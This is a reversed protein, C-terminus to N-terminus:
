PVIQSLSFSAWFFPHPFLFYPDSKLNRLTKIQVSQLARAANKDQMWVDFFDQMQLLASHSDIQWHSALVRRAGRNLLCRQIGALGSGQYIKGYATECGILFVLSKNSWDIRKLQHLTVEVRNEVKEKGSYFSLYFISSDPLLTDPESHGLLVCIDYPKDLESIIEEWVPLSDAVALQIVDDFLHTVHKLFTGTGPFAEDASLLLRPAESISDPTSILLEASPLTVLATQEILATNKSSRLSQFPVRYLCDDPVIYTTESQSLKKLLEPWAFLRDYLWESVQRYKTYHSITSDSSALRFVEPTDQILERLKACSRRMKKNDIPASFLQLTDPHLMFAYLSDETVFHSILINGPLLQEKIKSLAYSERKRKYGSQSSLQVQKKIIHAKLYDLKVFASDVRGNRIEYLVSNKLYPFMRHQYLTLNDLNEIGLSIREFNQMMRNSTRIAQTYNGQRHIVEALIGQAEILSQMDGVSTAKKAAERLLDEAEHLLNMKIMSQGMLIRTDLGERFLGNKEYLNLALQFQVLAEEHQNLKQNLRGMSLLLEGKTTPLLLDQILEEAEKMLELCNDMDGLESRAEALNILWKGKKHNVKVPLNELSELAEEFYFSAKAYESLRYFLLGLNRYANGMNIYNGQQMNIKVTKRYESEARDWSGVYLYTIGAISHVACRQNTDLDMENTRNCISLCEKYAGIRMKVGALGILGSKEYWDIQPVREYRRAKLVTATYMADAKIYKGATYLAEAHNFLFGTERLHYGSQSAAIRSEEFLPYSLDQLSRYQFLIILLRQKLDLQIRIDPIESALQLGYMAFQEALVYNLRRNNRCLQDSHRAILWYRAEYVQMDAMWSLLGSWYNQLTEDKILIALRRARELGFEFQDTEERCRKQMLFPILETLRAEIDFDSSDSLELQGPIPQTKDLLISEDVTDNVQQIVSDPITTNLYYNKLDHLVDDRQSQTQATLIAEQLDILSTSKNLCSLPLLCLMVLVLLLLVISFGANM